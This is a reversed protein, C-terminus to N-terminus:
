VSSYQSHKPFLTPGREMQFHDLYGSAADLNVAGELVSRHSCRTCDANMAGCRRLSTRSLCPKAGGICSQSHREPRRAGSSSKEALCHLHVGEGRRTKRQHLRIVRHRKLIAKRGRLGKMKDTGTVCLYKRRVYTTAHCYTSTRPTSSATAKVRLLAKM